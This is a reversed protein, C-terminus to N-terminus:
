WVCASASQDVVCACTLHICISSSTCSCATFSASVATHDTTPKSAVRTPISVLRAQVVQTGASTAGHWSNVGDSSSPSTGTSLLLVSGTATRRTSFSRVPISSRLWLRTPRALDKRVAHVDHGAASPMADPSNLVTTAVASPRNRAVPAPAVFGTRFALPTSCTSSNPSFSSMKTSEPVNCAGLRDRMPGLAASM